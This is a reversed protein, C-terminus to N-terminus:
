QKVPSESVVKDPSLPVLPDGGINHIFSYPAEPANMTCGAVSAVAVAVAVVSV